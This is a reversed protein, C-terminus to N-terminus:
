RQQPGSIQFRPTRDAEIVTRIAVPAEWTDLRITQIEPEIWESPDITTLSEIALSQEAGHVWRVLNGPNVDLGPATVLGNNTAVAVTGPSTEATIERPEAFLLLWSDDPLLHLTSGTTWRELVRYRAETVGIVQSNIIIGAGLHRGRHILEIPKM